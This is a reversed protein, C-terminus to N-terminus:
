PARVVEVEVDVLALEEHQEARRAAALRRQEVADGAQEVDGVALDEDVALVDGPLLGLVAADAHHELGVREIRLHRHAAVQGEAQLVGRCASPRSRCARRRAGGLDQLDLRQELALGACSDPPWRWRTAMPRASTRSTSTNRNSSGSDLRSALSRESSRTSILRSCWCARAVRHDVDGVVLDLRQRQGVADRDHVAADDLLEGRRLRDVVLRDVQKTAPKMPEGAIFKRSPLIMSPAPPLANSVSPAM